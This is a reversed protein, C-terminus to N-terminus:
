LERGGSKSATAFDKTYMPSSPATGVCRSTAVREQTDSREAAAFGGFVYLPRGTENAAKKGLPVLRRSPIHAPVPIPTVDLPRAVPSGAGIGSRVTPGADAHAGNANVINRASHIACNADFTPVQICVTPACHSNISLEGSSTDSTCVAELRGITRSASGAPAQASRASRRRRSSPAWSAINTAAAAKAAM